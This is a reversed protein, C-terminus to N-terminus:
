NKLNKFRCRTLTSSISILIYSKNINKVKIRIIILANLITTQNFDLLKEGRKPITNSSM